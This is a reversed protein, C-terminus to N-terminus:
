VFDYYKQFFFNDNTNSANLLASKVNCVVACAWFVCKCFASVVIIVFAVLFFRQYVWASNNVFTVFIFSFIVM